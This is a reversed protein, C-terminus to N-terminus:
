LARLLRLKTCNPCAKSNHTDIYLLISEVDLMDIVYEYTILSYKHNFHM